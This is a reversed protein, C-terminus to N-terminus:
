GHLPLARQAPVRDGRLRRRRRARGLASSRQAADDDLREGGDERAARRGVVVHSGIDADGNRTQLVARKPFHNACFAFSFNCGFVCRHKQQKDNLERRLEDITVQLTTLASTSEKDDEEDVEAKMTELEATLTAVKTKWVDETECMKATKENLEKYLQRVERQYDASLRDSDSQRAQEAAELQQRWDREKEV